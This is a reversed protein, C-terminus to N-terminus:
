TGPPCMPCPRFEDEWGLEKLRLGVLAATPCREHRVEEWGFSMRPRHAMEAANDRARDTRATHKNAHYRWGDLRVILEGDPMVYLLDEALRRGDVIVPYQRQPAPLGHAREVDLTWDAELISGVGDRLLAVADDLPRRYRRPRRLEIARELQEAPVRASAALATLTRMASRADPEAVALDIITHPKSVRPPDDDLRIHDFARSRHVEVGVCGRASSGYPVTLHVAASEDERCLGHLAAASAHSLAAPGPVFLLAARRRAAPTLPGTFTAIVGHARLTWRGGDLHATIADRTFGHALAQRRTVLGDQAAVLRTWSEPEEV